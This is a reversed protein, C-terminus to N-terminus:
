LARVEAGEINMIVLDASSIIHEAIFEDLTVGHVEVGGSEILRNQIHLDGTTMQVAGRHDTIAVNVPTVNGLGECTQVLSNFTSPHGEIAYVRGSRGVCRSLLPTIEGAGAGIDLVTDNPRPTYEQFFLDRALADKAAPSRLIRSLRVPVWTRDNWWLRVSVPVHLVDRRVAFLPSMPRYLARKLIELM